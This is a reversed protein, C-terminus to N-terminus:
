IHNTPLGSSMEKCVASPNWTNSNLNLLRILCLDNKCVSLDNFLERQGISPIMVPVEARPWLPGPVLSMALAGDSATSQWVKTMRQPLIIGRCLHLRHIRSAWYVPSNKITNEISNLSKLVCPKLLNGVRGNTVDVSNKRASGLM